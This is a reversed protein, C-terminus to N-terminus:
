IIEYHYGRSAWWNATNDAPLGEPKIDASDFAWDIVAPGDGRSSAPYVELLANKAEYRDIVGGRVFAAVNRAQDVLFYHRNGETANRVKDCARKLVGRAFALRRKEEEDTLKDGPLILRAPETAAPIVKKPRSDLYEQRWELAVKVPLIRDRYAPKRGFCGYFLRCYDKCSPDPTGDFKWMMALIVDRYIAGDTIEDDLLFIVRLRPKEDTSSPTHYVVAAYQQVVPHNLVEQISSLTDFDAALHMALEFNANARHLPGPCGEPSHPVPKGDRFTTKVRCNAGGTHWATITAGCYKLYVLRALTMEECHMNYTLAMACRKEWETRDKWPTGPLAFKPKIGPEGPVALSHAIKFTREKM